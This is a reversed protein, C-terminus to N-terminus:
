VFGPAPHEAVCTTVSLAVGAIVPVSITHPVDVDANANLAPTGPPVHLLLLPDAAPISGDVPITVPTAEPVVLIVYVVAPTPHEAVLMTVSLGVGAIEPVNIKHPVVLVVNVSLAPRAPPVHLLPFVAAALISGDVPMTVPTAGPVLVM